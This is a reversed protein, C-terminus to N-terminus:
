ASPKRSRPSRASAGSAARSPGLPSAGQGMLRELGSIPVKAAQEVTANPNDRRLAVLAFAKLVKTARAKGAQIEELSAGATDEILEMEEITLTSADLELTKTESM